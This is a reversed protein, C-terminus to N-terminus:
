RGCIPSRCTPRSSRSRASSARRSRRPRVRRASTCRGCRSTASSRCTSIRGRRERLGARVQQRARRRRGRGDARRPQLRPLAQRDSGPRALVEGGDNRQRHGGEADVGHRARRGGHVRPRARDPHGDDRLLQPRRSQPVVRAAPQLRVAAPGRHLHRRRRAPLEDAHHLRRCGLGRRALRGGPTASGQLVRDHPGRRLRDAASRAARHHSTRRRLRSRDTPRVLANPRVSRGRRAARARRLDARRRAPPAAAAPGRRGLQEQRRRAAGRARRRAVRAVGALARDRRRDRDRRRALVSVRELQDLRRIQLPLDAGLDLRAIYASSVWQGVVLGAVGGLGSLLLGETVMQRVLRGRTAGLAARVAMERQRATARVLLLNAVNMCALLLVLGAIALGFVQVLPVADTVARM